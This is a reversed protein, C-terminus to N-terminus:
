QISRKSLHRSGILVAFGRAFDEELNYGRFSIDSSDQSHHMPHIKESSIDRLESLEGTENLVFEKMTIGRVFVSQDADVLEIVQHRGFILLKETISFQEFLHLIWQHE